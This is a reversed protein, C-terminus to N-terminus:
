RRRRPLPAAARPQPRKSTAASTRVEELYEKEDAEEAKLRAQTAQTAAAELRAADYAKSADYQEKVLAKAKLRAQTAAAGM